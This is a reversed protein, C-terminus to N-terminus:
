SAERTGDCWVALADGAPDIVVCSLTRGNVEFQTVRGNPDGQQVVPVVPRDPLNALGLAAVGAGALMGGGFLVLAPLRTV